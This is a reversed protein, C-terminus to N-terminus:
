LETHGCSIHVNHSLHKPWPCPGTFYNGYMHWHPLRTVWMPLEGSLSNAEFVLSMWNVTKYSDPITGTLGKYRPARYTNHDPVVALEILSTLEPIWDPLTGTIQNEYLKLNKLSRWKRAVSPFPGTLNSSIDCVNLHTLAGLSVPLECWMGLGDLTVGVVNGEERCTIGAWGCADGTGWHTRKPEPWSPGNCRLYMELLADREIPPCGGGSASTVILFLFAFIM